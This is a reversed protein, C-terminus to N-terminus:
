LAEVAETRQRPAVGEREPVAPWSAIAHSTGTRPLKLEEGSPSVRGALCSTPVPLKGPFYTYVDWRHPSVPGILTILCHGGPTAASSTAKSRFLGFTSNAPPPFAARYDVRRRTILLLPFISGVRVPLYDVGDLAGSGTAPGAKHDM